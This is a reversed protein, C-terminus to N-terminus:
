PWIPIKYKLPSTTKILTELRPYKSLISIYKKCSNNSTQKLKFSFVPFVDDM